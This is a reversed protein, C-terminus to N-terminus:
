LAMCEEERKDVPLGYEHQSYNPYLRENEKVLQDIALNIITAFSVSTRNSEVYGEDDLDLDPHTSTTPDGGM